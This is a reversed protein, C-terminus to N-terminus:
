GTVRALERKIKERIARAYDGHRRATVVFGARTVVNRLYYQTTSVGISEIAIANIMVGLREAERRAAATPRGANEPGDGSIDIIRRTCHAAAGMQGLAFAIADGPATNSQIFARRLGRAREAFATIEAETRLTTWPISMEQDAEGSWQMVALMVEGQLIAERVEPDLFAEAMGDAQLRYEAVDVSNSVDVALLLATECARAPLAAGALAVFMSLVLHSGWM